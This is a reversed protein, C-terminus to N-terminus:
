SYGTAVFCAVLLTEVSSLLVCVYVVATGTRLPVTSHYVMGYLNCRFQVVFMDITYAYTCGSIFILFPLLSLFLSSFFFLFSFFLFSFCSFFYYHFLFLCASLACASCRSGLPCTQQKSTRNTGFVISNFSAM